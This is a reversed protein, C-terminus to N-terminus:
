VGLQLCSIKYMSTVKNEVQFCVWFFLFLFLFEFKKGEELMEIYIYIYNRMPM